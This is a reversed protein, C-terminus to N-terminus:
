KGKDGKHLRYHGEIKPNAHTMGSFGPLIDRHPLLDMTLRHM